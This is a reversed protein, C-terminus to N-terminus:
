VFGIPFLIPLVSGYMFTVFVVMLVSSYKYHILFTPGEYLSEFGFITTRRTRLVDNPWFKRQDWVRKVHRISYFMFFEFIPWVANFLMNYVIVGGIDSFWQANFDTYIGSFLGNFKWLNYERSDMSAILCLLGTQFFSTYFVSFTIFSAKESNDNFGIVEAIAMFLLRVLFNMVVIM